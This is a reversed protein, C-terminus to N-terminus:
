LRALGLLLSMAMDSDGMRECLAGAQRGSGMRGVAPFEIFGMGSFSTEKTCLYTGKSCRRHLAFLLPLFCFFHSVSLSSSLFPFSFVRSIMMGFSPHCTERLVVVGVKTKDVDPTRGGRKLAM